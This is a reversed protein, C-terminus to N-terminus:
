KNYELAITEALPVEWNTRVYIYSDCEIMLENHSKIAGAIDGVKYDKVLRRIAEQNRFNFMKWLEDQVDIDLYDLKRHIAELRIADDMNKVYGYKVADLYLDRVKPSWLVKYRGVPWVVYAEGYSTTQHYDGTCFLTQSRAKIHFKQDFMDDLDFHFDKGMDSPNRDKRVQKEGWEKGMNMGRYLFPAHKKAGIYEKKFYPMWENLFPKCKRQIIDWWIEM